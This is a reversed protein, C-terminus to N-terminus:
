FRYSLRGMIIHSDYDIDSTIAGTGATSTLEADASFYRYEVGFIVNPTIDYSAGAILQWAFATDDDDLVSPIAAIGFDSFDVIALGIGAGIYPRFRNDPLFDHYVNAMFAIASADGTSGPQNGGLAAVSHVDVDNDHYSLQGEARIGGFSWVRGFDYGVFGGFMVGSDYENDVNVAGLINFDTDNLFNLGGGIGVYVGKSSQAGAHMPALALYCFLAFIISKHLRDM